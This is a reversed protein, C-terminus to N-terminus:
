ASRGGKIRVVEGKRAKAAAIKDRLIKVNAEVNALHRDAENLNEMSDQHDIRNDEMLIAAAKVSSGANCCFDLFSARECANESDAKRSITYGFRGNFDSLIEYQDQEPLTAMTPELLELAFPKEGKLAPDFKKYDNNWRTSLVSHQSWGYVRQGAPTMDDHHDKIEQVFSEGRGYNAMLHASVKMRLNYEIKNTM